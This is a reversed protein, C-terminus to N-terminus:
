SAIPDHPKKNARENLLVTSVHTVIYSTAGTKKTLCVGVRTNVSKEIVPLVHNGVLSTLYSNKRECDSKLDSIERSDRRFTHVHDTQKGIISKM